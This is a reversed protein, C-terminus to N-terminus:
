GSQAGDSRESISRATPPRAAAAPSRSTSSAKKTDRDAGFKRALQVFVWGLLTALASFLVPAVYQIFLATLQSQQEPAIVPTAEQAFAAVPALLTAIALALVAATKKM